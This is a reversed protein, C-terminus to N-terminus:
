EAGAVVARLLGTLRPEAEAAAALIDPLAV